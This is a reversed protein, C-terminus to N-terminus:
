GPWCEGLGEHVDVCACDAPPEDPDCPVACTLSAISCWSGPGCQAPADLEPVCPDGPELVTTVPMSCVADEVEGGRPVVCGSGEACAPALPDCTQLCVQAGGRWTTCVSGESCPHETTCAFLCVGETQEDAFVCSHGVDCDDTDGLDTCPDGLGGPDPPLADCYQYDNCKDGPPCGFPGPGCEPPPPFDCFGVAGPDGVVCIPGAGDSSAADDDDGSGAGSTTSSADDDDDGQFTGGGPAEEGSTGGSGSEAGSVEVMESGVPGCAALMVGALAVRGMDRLM